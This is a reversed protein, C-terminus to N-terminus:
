TVWQIVRIAPGCFTLFIIQCLFIIVLILMLLNSKTIGKFINVSNDLIRANFFNFFQLMVFVNFNYTYHVSYQRYYSRDFGSLTRGSVITQKGYQLQRQGIVDFLFHEGLFVFILLIAIQLVSQGLIMKMMIPTIIYDNKKNPQRDLLEEGPPETALALAALTDMILNIWLLQVTSLIAEKLIVASIFTTIVAVVNVTLQFVLFKKISDYINRGWKVAKVISSFNDDLILISAAQKAVETGAIGMAFGVDAKSLAPADNTGDGTVGVVEGTPYKQAWEAYYGPACPRCV